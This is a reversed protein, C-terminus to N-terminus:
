SSGLVGRVRYSLSSTIRAFCCSSPRPRHTGPRAVDCPLFAGGPLDQALDDLCAADQPDQDFPVQLDAIGVGGEPIHPGHEFWQQHAADVPEDEHEDELPLHTTIWVDDEQEGSHQGPHPEGTPE